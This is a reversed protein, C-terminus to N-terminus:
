YGFTEKLYEAKDLVVDNTIGGAEELGYANQYSRMAKKPKGIEEFYRGRFYNGLVTKPMKDEALKSLDKYLEFKKNKKIAKDILMLDNVRYDIELAYLEYITEHKRILYEVYDDAKLLQDQYEKESIPKYLSFINQLARPLAITVMSFHDADEVDKYYYHFRKNDVLSFQANAQRIKNKLSEIDNEATALYYWVQHKSKEFADNLRSINKTTYDPSLNIYGRFVPNEQMLFYSAFDAMYDQAVIVSFPSARYNEYVFKMVELSVFDYFKVGKDKPYGKSDDKQGDEMRYGAQNIGIVIVEPIYDWYSYFDSIGAVPEFLYDGDFTVIVPYSKDANKKYNRPLQVKIQRTEELIKSDVKIYETQSFGLSFCFTLTMLILQKM